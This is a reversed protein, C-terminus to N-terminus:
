WDLAVNYVKWSQGSGGDYGYVTSYRGGSVGRGAIEAKPVSLLLPELWYTSRFIWLAVLRTPAPNRPPRDCSEGCDLKTWGSGIQGRRRCRRPSARLRRARPTISASPTPVPRSLAFAQGVITFWDPCGVKRGVAGATAGPRGRTQSNFDDQRRRFCRRTVPPPKRGPTSAWDAQSNLRSRRTPGRRQASHPRAIRGPQPRPRRSNPGAAV